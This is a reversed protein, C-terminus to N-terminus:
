RRRRPELPHVGAQRRLGRLAVPRAAVPLAPAHGHPLACLRLERSGRRRLARASAHDGRDDELLPEHRRTFGLNRALRHIHVDVPVLLRAPLCTGCASTSATPPVCWGACSSCCGSAAARGARTPCCIRRARPAPRRPSPRRGRPHRRVMRRAGRAPSRGDARSGTQTARTARALEAEFLAGLSGHELQVARAGALLRAVDEGRFVRARWGHLRARSPRRRGRRRPGSAPGRARAPGGAQRPHGERQRVRHM